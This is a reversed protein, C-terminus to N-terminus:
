KQRSKKNFLDSISETVEKIVDEAKDRFDATADTLKQKFAEGLKKGAMMNDIETHFSSPMKAKLYGAITEIAKDAQEDTCNTNQKLLNKLEHM